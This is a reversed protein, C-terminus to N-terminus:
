FRSNWYNIAEIALEKTEFEGPYYDKYKNREIKGEVVKYIKQGKNMDYVIYWKKAM